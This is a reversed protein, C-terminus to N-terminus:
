LDPAVGELVADGLGERGKELSDENSGWSMNPNEVPRDQIGKKDVKSM